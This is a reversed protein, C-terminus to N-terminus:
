QRWRSSRAPNHQRRLDRQEFESPCPQEVVRAVSQQPSGVPRGVPRGADGRDGQFTGGVARVSVAPDARNCRRSSGVQCGCRSRFTPPVRHASGTWSPRECRPPTQQRKSSSPSSRNGPVGGDGPEGLGIAVAQVNQPTDSEISFTQAQGSPVQEKLAAAIQAHADLLQTPIGATLANADPVYAAQADQDAQEPPPEFEQTAAVEDSDAGENGHRDLIRQQQVHRM